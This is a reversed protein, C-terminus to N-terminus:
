WARALPKRDPELGGIIQMPKRARNSWAFYDHWLQGCLLALVDAVSSKKDRGDPMVYHHQTLAFNACLIQGDPLRFRCQAFYSDPSFGGSGDHVLSAEIGPPMIFAKILADM